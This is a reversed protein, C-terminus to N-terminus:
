IMYLLWLFKVFRSPDVADTAWSSCLERRCRCRGGLLGRLWALIAEEWACEVAIM